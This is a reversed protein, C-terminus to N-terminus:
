RFTSYTWHLNGSGGDEAPGFTMEDSWSDGGQLLYTGNDTEVFGWAALETELAFLCDKDATYSWTVSSGPGGGQDNLLSKGVGRLARADACAPVDFRAVLRDAADQAPDGPGGFCSGPLLSLGLAALAIVKM